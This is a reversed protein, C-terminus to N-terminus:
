LVIKNTNEIKEQQSYYEIEDMRKFEYGKSSLYEIISGLADPTTKKARADHMLVVLNKGYATQKIKALLEPASRLVAEADGNLCNWDAYYFGNQKLVNIYQQKQAGYVSEAHSGGPFRILRFPEEGIIETIKQHTQNIEGMFSDATAYLDEYRHYYSHNAILHGEDHVRKLVDPNKEAMSGLVFFTAKVNYQKLIDLIKPTIEKTPGDDFTLYCIKADTGRADTAIKLLNNEESAPPINYVKDPEKKEASEKEEAGCASLVSLALAAVCIVSTWKKLKDKLYM